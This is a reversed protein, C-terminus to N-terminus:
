RSFIAAPSSHCIVFETGDDTFTLELTACMLQIMEAVTNNDFTITIERSKLSDDAFVVPQDSLKNMVRVLNELREDKFHMNETYRAFQHRNDSWTKHLQGAQLRVTEGSEVQVTTGTTKLMVTVSGHQVSLEFSDKGDSKINFQTGTVEVLAPKTEILFPCEKNGHVDFLAEGQLSVQRKDDAFREPSTLTAGGALYVISGDNLTSVLTNSIDSNSISVFTGSEKKSSLYFAMAGGCICLAVVAAVRRMRVILPVIKARENEAVLLGEDNLRAHLKDWAQDINM